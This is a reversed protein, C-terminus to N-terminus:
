IPISYLNGEGQTMLNAENIAWGGCFPDTGVVYYNLKRGEATIVIDGVIASGEITVKGDAYTYGSSVEGGNISVRVSDPLAYTAHPALTATYDTGATASDAGSITVNTGNFKVNVTRPVCTATVEGTEANFTVVVDCLATVDVTVDDGQPYRSGASDLVKFLYTGYEAPMLGRYTITYLYGESQQLLNAEDVGWGGCFADSGVVYYKLKEGTVTIQINGDIESAPITITGTSRDYSYKGPDLVASGVKVTIHEPNRYTTHATVTASYAYGSVVFAEGEATVGDTHFTVTHTPISSASIIIDGDIVAGDITLKGNTYTYGSTLPQANIAVTIQSPLVYGANASLQAEYTVGATASDAGNSSIGTGIFTVKVQIPAATHSVQGTVADFSVTVESLANLEIVYNNAEPYWHGANDRVKIEYRGAPIKSFTLSYTDGNKVMLNAADLEWGTGTFSEDGVLYYVIVEGVASITINGTVAAANISLEGTSSNYSYDTGATLTTTGAKVTISGPLIYGAAPTLQATYAYGHYVKDDGTGSVNTCSFVVDYQDVLTTPTATVKRSVPDFNVVVRSEAPCSIEYNGDKGDGGWSQAWSGITVKLAHSGAPVSDFILTYTGDSNRTMINNADGPNWNSGCLEQNGAVYYMQYTVATIEIDGVTANSNIHLLGSSANYDWDTTLTIGNRKVTIDSKTLGYFGSNATITVYLDQGHKISEAGSSKTCGTLDYTVSYTKEAGSATIIIDGTINAGPISVSGNTSNYSYSSSSLTSGNVTVTISSPLKYGASATLTTTYDTGYEATTGGSSTVDSLGSKDVSFEPVSWSGNGESWAGESVTYLASNTTPVTLDSTQNLCNDWNNTTNSPNM